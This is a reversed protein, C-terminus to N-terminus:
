EPAICYVNKFVKKLKVGGAKSIMGEFRRIRNAVTELPIHPYRHNLFKQNQVYKANQYKKIRKRARKKAKIWGKMRNKLSTGFLIRQDSVQKEITTIIRECALPGHQAAFNKEFLAAKADRDPDSSSAELIATLTDALEQDSYCQLSLLNPLKYFGMDYKDNVTARFAIAPKNMAFAEVATTCSNHILAQSAMLWPVVNGSNIVHVNQCEAAVRQYIEPNEVPHPRVVIRHDPLKRDLYPILKLFDGLVAKKHNSLGEAYARSMGTAARGFEPQQANDSPPRLLNRNPSFANVHNFNTNILIYNGYEHKLEQVRDAFFDRMESRLLDGRPNGTIHIQIKAPLESYGRWLDVNEQGWAFLHSV